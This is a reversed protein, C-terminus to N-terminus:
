YTHSWALMLDDRLHSRSNGPVQEAETAVLARMFINVTQDNVEVLIDPSVPEVSAAELWPEKVEDRRVRHLILRDVFLEDLGLSAAHRTGDLSTWDLAVPGPFTRGGVPVIIHHGTWRDRWAEFPPPGSPGDSVVGDRDVKRTGFQYRNYVLSCALTNFCIAGFNHSHFRLPWPDKGYLPGALDRNPTHSTM